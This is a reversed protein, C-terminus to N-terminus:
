GHRVLPEGDGDRYAAGMEVAVIQVDETVDAFTDTASFASAHAEWGGRMAEQAEGETEGFADFHFHSTDLTAHYFRM